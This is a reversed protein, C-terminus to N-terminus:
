WMPLSRDFYVAMLRVIPPWLMSQAFGNVGWVAVMAGVGSVAPMTLNMCATLLLGFVLLWKPSVRDGLWGSVLQGVGYTIFSATTALAAESKLIGESAVIEAIVAAYNLRTIYSAFYVM